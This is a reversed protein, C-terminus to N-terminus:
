NGDTVSLASEAHRIIAELLARATARQVRPLDPLAPAEEVGELLRAAYALTTLPDNYLAGADIGAIALASQIDERQRKRRDVSTGPVLGLTEQVEVPFRERQVRQIHYRVAAQIRMREARSVSAADYASILADQYERSAGRLDNFRERLDVVREAIIPLRSRDGANYRRIHTSIEEVLDPVTAPTSM